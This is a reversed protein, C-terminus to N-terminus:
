KALHWAKKFTAWLAKITKHYPEEIMSGRATKYYQGKPCCNARLLIIYISVPTSKKFTPRLAYLACLIQSFICFNLALRLHM